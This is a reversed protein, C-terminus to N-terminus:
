SPEKQTRLFEVLANVAEERTYFTGAQCCYDFGSTFFPGNSTRWWSQRSRVEIHGVQGTTLTVEIVKNYKENDLSERVSFHGLGSPVPDSFKSHTIM